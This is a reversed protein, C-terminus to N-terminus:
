KKLHDNIYRQIVGWDGNAPELIDQGDDSVADVLVNDNTLGILAAHDIDVNTALLSLDAFSLNTYLTQQLANMVGPLEPIAGLSRVRDIIAHILLLQRRSRAFDSGESAPSTIYRARAYQLAREGDMHQLGAKFTATGTGPLGDGGLNIASWGVPVNVDVGGLADVLGRFGNFNLTLWYQVPMGTVDSVKRAAEAGGAAPSASIGNYGNSLGNEYATNLKAYNGSQPPVQVWLDRPVSIMTTANDKPNISVVIMSDTLNPGNHDGGGYGLILLNIRDGATMYRTQTSLPNQTSIASGFDWLRHALLGGVLLAALLAILLVRRAMGGRAFRRTTPAKRRPPVPFDDGHLPTTLEPPLPPPPVADDPLRPPQTPADWDAYNQQPGSSRAM